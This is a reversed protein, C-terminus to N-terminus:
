VAPEWAKDFAAFLIHVEDPNFVGPHQKLFGRMDGSRGGPLSTVCVIGSFPVGLKTVGDV